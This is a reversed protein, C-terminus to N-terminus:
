IVDQDSQSEIFLGIKSVIPKLINFDTKWVKGGDERLQSTISGYFNADCFVRYAIGDDASLILLKRTRGRYRDEYTYQQM